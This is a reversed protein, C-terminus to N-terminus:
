KTKKTYPYNVKRDSSIHSYNLNSSETPKTSHKKSVFSNNETLSYNLSNSLASNRETAFRVNKSHSM